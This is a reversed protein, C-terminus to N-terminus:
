AATLGTPSRDAEKMAIPPRDQPTHSGNTPVVTSFLDSSMSHSGSDNGDKWCQGSLAKCSRRLEAVASRIESLLLRNASRLERSARIETELRELAPLPQVEPRFTPAGAGPKPDEATRPSWQSSMWTDLEHPRALVARRSASGSPRRVPLGLEQEWRQVTRVSRGMYRAIDKWATLVAVQKDDSALHM